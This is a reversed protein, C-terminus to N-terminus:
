QRVCWVAGSTGFATRCVEGQACADCDREVRYPRCQYPELLDPKICTESSACRQGCSWDFDQAPGPRCHLAGDQNSNRICAVGGHEQCRAFGLGCSSGSRCARGRCAKGGCDSGCQGCHRPDSTVDVCEGNCSELGPLCVCQGANCVSGSGCEFGCQGCHSPDLQTDVCRMAGDCYTSGAECVCDGLICQSRADACQRNCAGCHQPHTNLDVRTGECIKHDPAVSMDLTRMDPTVLPRMDEQPARMDLAVRMDERMDVAARMDARAPGAMDLHTAPMDAAVLRMDAPEARMDRARELNAAAPEFSCGAMCLACLIIRACRM